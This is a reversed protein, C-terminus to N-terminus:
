GFIARRLLDLAILTILWKFGTRFAKEPLKGLFHSGIATGIFGAAVMALMIPLFDAFVFGYLVFATIKATNQFTMLAAHTAVLQHRDGAARIFTLVLPGTVGVIMGLFSIVAGGIFSEVPGRTRVDPRPLWIMVLIFLGILLRFLNEPLLAAFNVGIASGLIAGLSIWAVLQWQIHARQIFARGANSGLQVVGHVPIVVAPPFVLSLVSLMLMGGGLSLTATLLSALLSAVILGLAALPDLGHPLLALPDFM